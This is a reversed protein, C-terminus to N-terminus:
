RTTVREKATIRKQVKTIEKVSVVPQPMAKLANAFILTQNTEQVAANKSAGGDVTLTGGGAMAIGGGFTRTKGRGSLPEVTVRERGGPNDGVLLMTPKTTVFDAGGAAAIGSITAVSKLGNAITLAAAIPGFPPPFTRLALTAGVYTNITAEAIAAAKGLASNEDFLAATQSIISQVAFLKLQEAAIEADIREQNQRKLEEQVKKDNEIRENGLKVQADLGQKLPDTFGGESARSQELDRLRKRRQFESETDDAIQKQNAAAKNTANIQANLLKDIKERAKIEKATISSAEAELKNIITQIAQKDQTEKQLEKQADIEQNLIELREKANDSINDQIKLAIERKQNLSTETNSLETVLESNEALRENIKTQVIGSREQIDELKERAQAIKNSEEAINTLDVGVFKLAQVVPVFKILKLYTDLLRSAAGEGDETSSFLVAFKDLAITTAASLQNTAFELDKAGVSSRAYAAGLAGVVAVAATAPNTFAVVKGKLDDVSVGAINIKSATNAFEKSIDKNSDILKDLQTKVGTVSKQVNNYTSQQKKLIGELRVSESAYEELTVNGAKYAKNLEAQEKKLSIISKKTEELEKIASGQEVQFDLIVTTKEEAM